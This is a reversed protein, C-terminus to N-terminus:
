AVALALYKAHLDSVQHKLQAIDDHNAIADNARSIREKNTLQTQIIRTAAAENTNDRAMVRRIQENVSCDITLTHDVWAKLNKEFLLPIVLLCYNSSLSKIKETAAERILPHLLDELWLRQDEHNFIIGSLKQRDLEGNDKLIDQGFHSTINKLAAQEPTVLERSILDTDIVPVDFNAFLNAVTTKGSGIGGTLGVVFM